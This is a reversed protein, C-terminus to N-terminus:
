KDLMKRKIPPIVGFIRLNLYREADNRDKFTDDFLEAIFAMGLGFLVSGMLAVVILILKKKSDPFPPPRAPDIFRINGGKEPESVKLIRAKEIQDRLVLYDNERVKVEQVLRSIESTNNANKKLAFKIQGIQNLISEKQRILKNRRAIIKDLMKQSDQHKQQAILAKQGKSSERREREFEDQMLEYKEQERAFEKEMIELQSRLRRIDPHSETKKTMADALTNRLTKVENEMRSLAPPIGGPDRYAEMNNETSHTEIDMPDGSELSQIRNQINGYEIELENLRKTSETTENQLSILSIINERKKFVDLNTQATQLRERAIVLESEMYTLASQGKVSVLENMYRIYIRAIANSIEAAQMSSGASATIQIINTGRLLDVTTTRILSDIAEDLPDVEIRFFAKKLRQFISPPGMNEFLRLEIAVKEYILKSRIVERQNIIFSQGGRLDSLFPVEGRPLDPPSVTIRNSTTYVPPMLYIGISSPVVMGLFGLIILYKRAIVIELFSRLVDNRINAHNM